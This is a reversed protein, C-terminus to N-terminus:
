TPDKPTLSLAAQIVNLRMYATSLKQHLAALESDKTKLAQTLRNIEIQQSDIEQGMAEINEWM